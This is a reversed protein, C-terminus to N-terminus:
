EERISCYVRFGAKKGLVSVNGFVENMKKELMKGGKQHRAVLQLSGGTTLHEFSEEIFRYCTERGAAYPPNTLIVDFMGLGQCVNAELVTVEVRNKLANKRTYELARLSTDVATFSIDSHLRGLAVCVPGWGCGLDLATKAGTLDASEILLRTAIDLHDKSFLGSATFFRLQQGLLSTSFEQEDLPSSQRKHFYHSM